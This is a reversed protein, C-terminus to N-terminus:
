WFGYVYLCRRVLSAWTHTVKLSGLGGPPEICMGFGPKRLSGFVLICTRVLLVLTWRWSSIFTICGTSTYYHQHRSVKIADSWSPTLVAPCTGRKRWKFISNRRSTIDTQNQIDLQLITESTYSISQIPIVTWDSETRNSHHM